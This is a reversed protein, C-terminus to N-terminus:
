ANRQQRMAHIEDLIDEESLTNTDPLTASLSQWREAWTSPQPLIAILGMDVLSAMLERVKPNRIEITLTDM